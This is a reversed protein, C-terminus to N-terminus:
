GCEIVNQDSHITIAHTANDFSFIFRQRMTLDPASGAGILKWNVVTTHLDDVPGFV